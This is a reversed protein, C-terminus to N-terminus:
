WPNKLTFVSDSIVYEVLNLSSTLKRFEQEHFEHKHWRSLHDALRNESSKLYQAKIEFENVAAVFCIERLCSQLVTCRTKGSNIAICVSMNDCLVIIRKHKFYNGWLHVCVVLALMELAGIHLQKSLIYAPFLSHFFNGNWFGGCGELCADSSFVEDPKSWEGLSMMSIGNYLPLFKDWWLLDKQVEEPIQHLISCKFGYLQRLWNLLRSIFVRSPKVCAGVFNLKGLLSQIDRISANQRNLWSKILIKIEKLREPTIEMTMTLTNFLVGLFTMIESPPSSKNYAEEIGCNKLVQGLTLYAFEAREKQEVGALDDLYNLIAIGMGLLIFAIANTVRQCIYAASRLGMSLVTDCFIHKKWVYSVLNYNSPCISIQRYARTLDKKFLLSGPGKAVILNVFDDVKPFMLTVEEGLYNDKDVSENVACQTNSSLDLIVRRDSIEKKPVSNLPSILLNHSFPNSKFPGIIAKNCMEKGLYKNIQEPYEEAGKYNKYKWIEKTVMMSDEDASFGIPFGFELLDCVLIDNYQFNRLMNRMYDTNIKDNVKIKCCEFNYKGSQKVIEHLIVAKELTEYNLDPKIIQCVQCSRPHICIHSNVSFQSRQKSHKISSNHGVKEYCFTPLFLDEIKNEQVM